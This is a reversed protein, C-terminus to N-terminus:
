HCPSPPWTYVVRDGERYLGFGRGINQKMPITESDLPIKILSKPNPQCQLSSSPLLWATLQLSLPCFLGCNQGEGPVMFVTSLLVNEGTQSFISLSANSPCFYKHYYHSFSVICTWWAMSCVETQWQSILNWRNFGPRSHHLSTVNSKLLIFGLMWCPLNQSLIRM